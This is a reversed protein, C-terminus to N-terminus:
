KKTRTRKNKGKKYRSYDSYFLRCILYDLADSTHGYEEYRKGTNKDEVKKKLKTGDTDEKVYSLDAILKKCRPHIYVRITPHKLELIINIFNVRTSVGPHSKGVKIKVGGLERVISSIILYDNRKEYKKSRRTDDNNGSPDGFVWVSERHTSYRSVVEEAAHETTNKPPESCVEDIIFLNQIGNFNYVQAILCTVYPNVNFDWSLLLPRSPIYDFDKINRQRDFGTYIEGGAKSFPDGYILMDILHSPLTNKQNEIYNAPLNKKNHYASSIVVFHSSTTKKYFFDTESFIKSKIELEFKELKFWEVLWQERAPSTVIYLPNFPTKTVKTTIKGTKTLYMGKQRNRGLVVEKVAAEKTDKTEDLLTWGVEMGDIAKFNDLSRTFIVAGWRFSIINNYRKFNHNDTNFEKPPQRNVVYDGQGTVEDYEIIGLEEWVERIRYLTSDNLQSYTNAAILGFVNPFNTALFLSLVGLIHSKGAGQGAFYLNVRNRANFFAQQPDSLGNEVQKWNIRNKPNPNLDLKHFTGKELSDKIADWERSVQIEM